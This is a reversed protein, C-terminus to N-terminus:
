EAHLRLRTIAAKPDVLEPQIKDGDKVKQVGELLIKDGEDLGSGIVYLDPMETSVTILKSRVVNDNGVVFVYKKDQIEYTAKQPIILANRLPVTM